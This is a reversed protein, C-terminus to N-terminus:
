IGFKLSFKKNWTYKIFIEHEVHINLSFKKNWTYKIFIEHKTM